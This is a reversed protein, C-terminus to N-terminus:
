EDAADSTYLLCLLLPLLLSTTPQGFQQLMQMQQNIKTTLVSAYRAVFFCVAFSLLAFLLAKLIQPKANKFASKYYRFM